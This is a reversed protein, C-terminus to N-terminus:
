ALVRACADEQSRIVESRRRRADRWARIRYEEHGDGKDVMRADADGRKDVVHKGQAGKAPTRGVVVAM